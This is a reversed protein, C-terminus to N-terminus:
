KKDKNVLKYMMIISFSGVGIMCIVGIIALMLIAVMESMEKEGGEM